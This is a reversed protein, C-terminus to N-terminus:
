RPVVELAKYKDGSGTGISDVYHFVEAYGMGHLEGFRRARERVEVGSVLAKKDIASSIDVARNVVHPGRAWLYLENVYHVTLGARIQEPHFRDIQATWCAQVVARALKLHDPDDDHSAWPDFTMVIHPKLLRVYFMIREMLETASVSDMAGTKLDLSYSERIGLVRAASSGDGAGTLLYATDGRDVFRAITGGADGAFDLAHPSVVLVVRAPAPLAALLLWLAPIKMAGNHLITPRM